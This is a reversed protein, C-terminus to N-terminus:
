ITQTTNDKEKDHETRQPPLVVTGIGGGLEIEIGLERRKRLLANIIASRSRMNIICLRDLWELVDDELTVSIQTRKIYDEPHYRGRKRRKVDAMNDKLIIYLVKIAKYM